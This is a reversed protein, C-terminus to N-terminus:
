PTTQWRIHTTLTHTENPALTVSDDLVNAAELCIMSLYDDDRFRSLRTSKEIWPNWLIASHSNQRSVEIIGKPTHLQQLPRLQTFVKDTEQTIVLNDQEQTFPGQNFEIFQAQGFGTASFQHIDGISFYSHLAQSFTITKDDLNTNILSLSLTDSLRFRASLQTRHPWYEQTSDNLTLTFLLDVETENINVESLQWIQTRAFGHQPWDPNAHMGFWPWCIPIGGRIASGVQYDNDSSRWLLPQQGKPKFFDIQAGQKFIRAQCHQTDIDIYELGNEHMKTTVSGM